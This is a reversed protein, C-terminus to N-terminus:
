AFLMDLQQVDVIEKAAAAPSQEAVADSTMSVTHSPVGLTDLLDDVDVNTEHRLTELCLDFLRPVDNNTKISRIMQAASAGFYSDIGAGGNDSNIYRLDREGVDCKLSEFRGPFLFAVAAEVTGIVSAVAWRHSGFVALSRINRSIQIDGGRSTSVSFGDTGYSETARKGPKGVVFPHIAGFRSGSQGAAYQEIVSAASRWMRLDKKSFSANASSTVQWEGGM